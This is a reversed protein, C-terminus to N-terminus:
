GGTEPDGLRASGALLVLEQWVTEVQVRTEELSGSNDIVYDGFALKERLPMQAALAQRAEATSLGDREMLRGLQIEERVFVVVVRDFGKVAGVEVLLPVDVLFVSDPERSGMNELWVRVANMVEPHVIENLHRRREPDRFVLSRLLRRNLSGDPHFFDAGFTHRLRVWAPRGPQVAERALVDTELVKAGLRSFMACVTSKGSAIGGTLGVKIMSEVWGQEGHQQEGGNGRRHVNEGGRV